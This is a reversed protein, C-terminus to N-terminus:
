IGISQWNFTITEAVSLSADFIMKIKFSTGTLGIIQPHASDFMGVTQGSTSQAWTLIISGFAPMDGVGGGGLGYVSLIPNGTSIAVSASSCIVGTLGGSDIEVRLGSNLEVGNAYPTLFGGSAAVSLQVINVCFTMTVTQSFAFTGLQEINPSGYIETTASPMNQWVRFGTEAGYVRLSVLTIQTNADAAPASVDISPITFFTNELFVGKISFPTIGVALSETEFQMSNVINGSDEASITIVQKTSLATTTIYGEGEIIVNGPFAENKSYFKIVTDSNPITITSSTEDDYLLITSNGPTQFTVRQYSSAGLIAVNHFPTTSYTVNLQGILPKNTYATGFSITSTVCNTGGLSITCSATGSQINPVVISSAIGLGAMSLILALVGIILAYDSNDYGNGKMSFPNSFRGM